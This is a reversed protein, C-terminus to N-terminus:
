NFQYSEGEQTITTTFPFGAQPVQQINEALIKSGTFIVRKENNFEIQLKLCQNSNSKEFKSKDIKYGHVVIEQNLVKAIRIKRGQLHDTSPKINFDSFKKM